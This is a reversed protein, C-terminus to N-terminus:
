IGHGWNRQVRQLHFRDAPPHPSNRSPLAGGPPGRAYYGNRCPTEGSNVKQPRLSSRMWKFARTLQEYPIEELEKVTSVGAEKLLMEGMPRGSGVCDFIAGGQVGSMILGKHFLGDAAPTQLLATVKMGGGSQGFITVNDPDGGFPPSTTMSGSSPQWWIPLAQTAPIGYEEGFESLDCFGLM